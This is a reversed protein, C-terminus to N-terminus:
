KRIRSATSTLKSMPQQVVMFVHKYSALMAMKLSGNIECRVKKETYGSTVSLTEELKLGLKQQKAICAPFQHLHRLQVHKTNNNSTRLEM